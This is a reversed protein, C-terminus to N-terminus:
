QVHITGFDPPDWCDLQCYHILGPKTFSRTATGGIMSVSDTVASNEDMIFIMANRSSVWRM